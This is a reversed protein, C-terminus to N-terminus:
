ENCSARSHRGNTEFCDPCRTHEGCFPSNITFLPCDGHECNGLNAADFCPTCYRYRLYSKEDADWAIFDIADPHDCREEYHNETSM